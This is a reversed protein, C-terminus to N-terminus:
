RRTASTVLLRALATRNHVNLKRFISRLHNEVTRISLHLRAGIQSNSLGLAVLEAVEAERASLVDTLAISCPAAGQDFMLLYRPDGRPVALAQLTMSPVSRDRCVERAEIRATTNHSRMVALALQLRKQLREPMGPRSFELAGESCQLRRLHARAREDVFLVRLKEDLVAIGRNPETEGLLRIVAERDRVQERLLMQEYAAAIVPALRMASEVHTPTFGSTRDPPMHLGLLARAHGPLAISLGMVHHIARPRFFECYFETRSFHRMDAVQDLLVIHTRGALERALMRNLVPDIRCYTDIYLRMDETSVRGFGCVREPRYRGDTDYSMSFCSSDAETFRELTHLATATLEDFTTCALLSHSADLIAAEDCRARNSM